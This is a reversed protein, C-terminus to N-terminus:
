FKIKYMRPFEKNYNLKITDGIRYKNEEDTHYYTIFKSNEAHYKCNILWDNKSSKRDIVICDTVKGNIKLEENERYNQVIASTPAVILISLACLGFVKTSHYNRNSTEIVKYILYPLVGFILLFIIWSLYKYKPYAIENPLFYIFVIVLITRFIWLKNIHKKEM